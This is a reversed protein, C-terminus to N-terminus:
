IGEINLNGVFVKSIAEYVEQINRLQKLMNTGDM